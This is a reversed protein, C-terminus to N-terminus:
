SPLLLRLLCAHGWCSLHPEAHDGDSMREDLVANGAPRMRVGNGDFGVTGVLLVSTTPVLLLLNRERVALALGEAVNGSAFWVANAYTVAM